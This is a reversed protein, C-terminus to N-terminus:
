VLPNEPQEAISSSYKAYSYWSQIHTIILLLAVITGNDQPIITASKNVTIIYNSISINVKNM